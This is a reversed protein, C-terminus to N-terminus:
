HVKEMRFPYSDTQPRRFHDPLNAEYVARARSNGMEQMMQFLLLLSTLHQFVRPQMYVAGFLSHGWGWLHFHTGGEFPPSHGWVKLSTILSRLVLGIRWRFLQLSNFIIKTNWPEYLLGLIFNLSNEMVRGHCNRQGKWTTVTSYITLFNFTGLKWVGRLCINAQSKVWLYDVQYIEIIWIVNTKM